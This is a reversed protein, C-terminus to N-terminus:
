NVARQEGEATEESPEAEEEEEVDAKTKKFDSRSEQVYLFPDIKLVETSPPSKILVRCIFKGERKPRMTDIDLLLNKLNDELQEVPMALTGFATTILGFNKQYDDKTAGYQIGIMARTVMEEINNGLTSNKVNPFRKKLLGRLPVIEPLISTQAIIHDFEQLNLDGNQIQKILDAGGALTAGANRAADISEQGKTFVLIKREEGHDFKHKIPAMRLFNDVFRTAKEGQMDLEIHAIVPANPENYATPHHTERHCEIAEAVTYVKWRYYKGPYVDDYPIQM